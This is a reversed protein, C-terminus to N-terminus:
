QLTNVGPDLQVTVVEEEGEALLFNQQATKYGTYSFVLAFAKDTPAKIKFFGSDNTTLGKQQGLIIVSVNKLPQEAEDLVRGSVFAPSKQAAATLNFFFILLVPLRYLANKM